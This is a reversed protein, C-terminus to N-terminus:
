TPEATAPNAFPPKESVAIGPALLMSKGSVMEHVVRLQGRGQMSVAARQDEDSASCAPRLGVLLLSSPYRVALRTM